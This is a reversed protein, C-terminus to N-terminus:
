AIVILTSILRPGKSVMAGGWAIVILTSILRPGKSLLVVGHEKLPLSYSHLLQTIVTYYYSTHMMLAYPVSGKKSRM